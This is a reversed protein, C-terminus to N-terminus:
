EHTFLISPVHHSKAAMNRAKESQEELWGRISYFASLAPLQVPASFIASPAKPIPQMTGNQQISM